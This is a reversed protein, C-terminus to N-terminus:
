SLCHCGVLLVNDVDLQPRIAVILCLFPKSSCILSRVPLQLRDNKDSMIFYVPHYAFMVDILTFIV